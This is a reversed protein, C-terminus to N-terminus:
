QNQTDEQLSLNLKKSKLTDALWKLLFFLIFGNLSSSLAEKILFDIKATSDMTEQIKIFDYLGHVLSIIAGILILYLIAYLWKLNGFNFEIKM